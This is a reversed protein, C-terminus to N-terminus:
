TEPEKSDGIDYYAILLKTTDLYRYILFYEQNNHKKTIIKAHGFRLGLHDWRQDEAIKEAIARDTILPTKVLYYTHKGFDREYEIDTIKKFNEEIEIVM